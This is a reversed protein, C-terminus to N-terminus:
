RESEDREHLMSLPHIVGGSSLYKVWQRPENGRLKLISKIEQESCWCAGVSEFDPSSKPLQNLDIPEAYFIIRMRIYSSHGRNGQRVDYELALIGKLEINIGAEEQTERIAATQLTEGADVAGGPLWYGQNAFEQCLLYKHTLPHKCVVLSFTYSKAHIKYPIRGTKRVIPGHTEHIHVQLPDNVMHHCIPCEIPEDINPWNIHFAPFHNWLDDETLGSLGCYPCCMNGKRSTSTLASPIVARQLTDTLSQIDHAVMNVGAEFMSLRLSPQEAAEPRFLAIFLM